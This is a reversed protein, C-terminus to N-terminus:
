KGQREEKSAHMCLPARAVPPQCACRRAERVVRNSIPDLMPNMVDAAQFRMVVICGDVVQLEFPPAM